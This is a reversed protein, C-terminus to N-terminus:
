NKLEFSLDSTILLRNQRNNWTYIIISDDLLEIHNIHIGNIELQYYKSTIVVTTLFQDRPGTLNKWENVFEYVNM